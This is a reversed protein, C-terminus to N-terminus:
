FHIENGHRYCVWSSFPWCLWKKQWPFQGSLPSGSWSQTFSGLVITNASPTQGRRCLWLPQKLLRRCSHTGIWKASPCAPPCASGPMHYQAWGMGPGPKFIWTAACIHTHTSNELRFLPLLYNRLFSKLNSLQLAAECPILQDSLNLRAQLLSTCHPLAFTLSVALYKELMTPQCESEKQSQNQGLQPKRPTLETGKWCSSFSAKQTPLLLQTHVVPHTSWQRVLTEQGPPMFGHSCLMFTDQQM